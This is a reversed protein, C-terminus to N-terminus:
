ATPPTSVNGASVPAIKGVSRLKFLYNQVQALELHLSRSLDRASIGRELFAKAGELFVFLSTDLWLNPAAMMKFHTEPGIFYDRYAGSEDVASALIGLLRTIPTNLGGHLQHPLTPRFAFTGLPSEMVTLLRDRVALGDQVEQEGAFFGRLFGEDLYLTLLELNPIDRLELKGTRRGLMNLVEPIPLDMLDGVIAM